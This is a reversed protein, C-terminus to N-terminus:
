TLIVAPILVLYCIVLLLPALTMEGGWLLAYGALLLVAASSRLIVARKEGFQITM